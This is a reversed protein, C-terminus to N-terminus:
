CGHHRHPRQEDTRRTDSGASPVPGAESATGAHGYGAEASAPGTSLNAAQQRAGVDPSLPRDDPGVDGGHGRHAYGHGGHGHGFLHFAAFGLAVAVWIWNSSLWNM